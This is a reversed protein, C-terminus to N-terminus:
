GIRDPLCSTGPHTGAGQRNLHAIPTELNRADKDGPVLERSEQAAGAGPAKM